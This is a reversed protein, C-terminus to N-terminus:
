WYCVLIFVALTYSSNNSPPFELSLSLSLRVEPLGSTNNSDAASLRASTSRRPRTSRRSGVSGAPFGDKRPRGVPRKIKPLPLPSDFSKKGSGKPRGPRRKLAHSQSDSRHLNRPHNQDPNIPFTNQNPDSILHSISSGQIPGTQLSHDIDM